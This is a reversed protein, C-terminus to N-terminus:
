ATADRLAQLLLQMARGRHSIRNKEEKDLQAATCDHSPVFFLPDYGFGGNGTPERLICGHWAAQCIIPTPDMAHRLYVLVCQYRAGRQLDPIDKLLTLLKSNNVSDNAEPGAFRASHIGPQGKLADVEIGSDDAIAAHGTYACANRAKILANEVFTLGTEAISPVDFASQARVDLKFDALLAQFERLKGTNGSALVLTQPQSSM